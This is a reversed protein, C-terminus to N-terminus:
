VLDLDIRKAKAKRLDGLELCTASLRQEHIRKQEKAKKSSWTERCLSGSSGLIARAFEVDAGFSGSNGGFDSECLIATLTPPNETAPGILQMTM